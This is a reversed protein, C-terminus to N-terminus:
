KLFLKCDISHTDTEAIVYEFNTKFDFKLLFKINFIIWTFKVKVFGNINKPDRNDLDM